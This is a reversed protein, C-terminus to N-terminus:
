LSPGALHKHMQLNPWTISTTRAKTSEVTSMTSELGSVGADQALRLLGEMQTATHIAAGDFTSTSVSPCLSKVWAAWGSIDSFTPETGLQKLPLTSGRVGVCGDVGGTGGIQVLRASVHNAASKLWNMATSNGNKAWLYLPEKGYQQLMFNPIVLMDIQGAPTVMPEVGAAALGASVLKRAYSDTSGPTANIAPQYFVRDYYDISDTTQKDIRGLSWIMTGSVSRVRASVDRAKWLASLTNYIGREQEDFPSYTGSSPSRRYEYFSALTYALQRQVVLGAVPDETMIWHVFATNELHSPDRGWNDVGTLTKINPNTARTVGGMEWATEGTQPFQPDVTVHLKNSWVAGQPQALSYFTYQTFQGWVSSIESDASHLALDIMGADVDHIFGRSSVYEGGQGGTTGVYNNSSTPIAIPDGPIPGLSSPDYDGRQADVTLPKLTAPSWANERQYAPIRKSLVADKLWQTNPSIPEMNQVVRCAGQALGLNWQYTTSNTKITVPVSIVSLATSDGAESTFSRRCAFARVFNPNSSLRM